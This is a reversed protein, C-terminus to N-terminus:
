IVSHIAQQVNKKLVVFILVFLAIAFVIVQWAMMTSIEVQYPKLTTALFWQIGAIFLISVFLLVGFSIIIRKTYFQNLMSPKFGLIFLLKLQHASQTITLKLYMFLLMVSLMLVFLGFFGCAGFVVNMLSKIKSMKLKDNQTSYNHDNLYKVLTPNDPENTKLILRANKQANGSGFNRNGYHMFEEPVLVSSFRQTFGAVEALYTETHAGQGITIEFRLAQITEESMQPLGQSLAFGFNYLNLFDASLVVPLTKDGEHWQWHQPEIDLYDTPVSEFFLQTYFKLEGTTSASIPFQNSTITKLDNVSATKKLGNIEEESFYSAENDGMMKNTIKKNVVLYESSEKKTQKGDLVTTVDVYLQVSLFLLLFGIFLAAFSWWPKRNKQQSLIAQLSSM